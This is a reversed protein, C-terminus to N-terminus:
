RRRGGIFRRLYGAGGGKHLMAKFASLYKEVPYKRAPHGAGIGTVIKLRNPAFGELLKRATYLDEADYWLETNTQRVQLGMAKLIFLDKACTHLIEKPQVIPLTLFYKAIDNHEQFSISDRYIFNTDVLYGIRQKAGSLYNLFLDLFIIGHRLCICMTYNRKWLYQAAINAAIILMAQTDGTAMLKLYDVDIPIVENVYPCLEAMQYIQKRVVLTIFASPYNARIERIAPTSLIFDGMYDLRFILINEVGSPQNDRYGQKVFEQEMITFDLNQTAVIQKLTKELANALAAYREQVFENM